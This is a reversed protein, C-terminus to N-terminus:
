FDGFDQIRLKHIAGFLIRQLIYTLSETNVPYYLYTFIPLIPLIRYFDTLIPLFRYFRYSDTPETSETSDAFDVSDFRVSGFRSETRNSETSETIPRESVRYTLLKTGNRYTKHRGMM